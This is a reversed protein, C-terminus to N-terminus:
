ISSYSPRKRFEVTWGFLNENSLANLFLDVWSVTGEIIVFLRQKRKRVEIAASDFQTLARFRHSHSHVWAIHFWQRIGLVKPIWFSIIDLKSKQAKNGRKSIISQFRFTRTELYKADRCIPVIPLSFFLFRYISLNTFQSLFLVFSCSGFATTNHICDSFILKAFVAQVIRTRQMRTVFTNINFIPLVIGSVSHNCKCESMSLKIDSRAPYIKWIKWKVCTCEPFDRFSHHRRLLNLWTSLVFLIKSPASFRPVTPNKKGDRSLLWRRKASSM